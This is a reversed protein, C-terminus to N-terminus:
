SIHTCIGSAHFCNTLSGLSLQGSIPKLLYITLICSKIIITSPIVAMVVFGSLYSSQNQYILLSQLIDLWLAARYFEADMTMQCINTVGRIVESLDVLLQLFVVKFVRKLGGSYTVPTLNRNGDHM